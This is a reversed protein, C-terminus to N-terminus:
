RGIMRRGRWSFQRVEEALASQGFGSLAHVEALLLKARVVHLDTGVKKGSGV